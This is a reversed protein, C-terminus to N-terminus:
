HMQIIIVALESYQIYFWFKHYDCANKSRKFSTVALKVYNEYLNLVEKKLYLMSNLGEGKRCGGSVRVRFQISHREGLAIGLFTHALVM